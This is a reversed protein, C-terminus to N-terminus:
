CLWVTRKTKAAANHAAEGEEIQQFDVLRILNINFEKNIETYTVSSILFRHDKFVRGGM